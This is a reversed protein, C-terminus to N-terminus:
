LDHQHFTRFDFFRLGDIVTGAQIEQRTWCHDSYDDTAVGGGGLLETVLWSVEDTGDARGSIDITVAWTPRGGTASQVAAIENDEWDSFLQMHEDVVNVYLVPLDAQAAGTDTWPARPGPLLRDLAAVTGAREGRPFVFVTRV